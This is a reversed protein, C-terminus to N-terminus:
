KNEHSDTAKARNVKAQTVQAKTDANTTASPQFEHSKDHIIAQDAQAQAQNAQQNMASQKQARAFDQTAQNAQVNQQHAATGATENAQAQAQGYEAQKAQTESHAQTMESHAQTDMKQVYGMQELKQAIQSDQIQVSQGQVVTGVAEHYFNVKAQYNATQGTM